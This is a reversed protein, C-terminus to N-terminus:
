KSLFWTLMAIQHDSGFWLWLLLLATALRTKKVRKSVCKFPFPLLKHSLYYIMALMLLLFLFLLSYLYRPNHRDSLSGLYLPKPGMNFGNHWFMAQRLSARRMYNRASIWQFSINITHGFIVDACRLSLIYLVLWLPINLLFPFRLQKQDRIWNSISQLRKIWSKLM